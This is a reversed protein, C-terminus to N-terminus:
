AGMPSADISWIFHLQLTTVSPRTTDEKEGEKSWEEQSEHKLDTEERMEKMIVDERRKVERSM